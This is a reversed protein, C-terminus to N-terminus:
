TQNLNNEQLPKNLMITSYLTVTFFLSALTYVGFKGDFKVGLFTLTLYYLIVFVFIVILLSLFYSGWFKSYFLSIISVRWDKEREINAFFELKLIYISYISIFSLVLFSLGALIYILPMNFIFKEKTITKDSAKAVFIFTLIPIIIILISVLPKISKLINESFIDFFSIGIGIGTFNKFNYYLISFAFLALLFNAFENVKGSITGLTKSGTESGFLPKVTYVKKPNIIRNNEDYDEPSCDIYIDEFGIDGIDIPKILSSKELTIDTLNTIRDKTLRPTNGFRGASILDMTFKRVKITPSEIYVYIGDDKSYHYFSEVGNFWENIYLEGLTTPNPEPETVNDPQGVDYEEDAKAILVDLEGRIDEQDETTDGELPIQIYMKKNQLSELEIVVGYDSNGDFHSTIIFRKLIYDVGNFSVNKNSDERNIIRYGLGVNSGSVVFDFRGLESSLIRQFNFFLTKGSDTSDTTSDISYYDNKYSM